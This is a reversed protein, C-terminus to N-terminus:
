CDGMTTEEEAEEVIEELFGNKILEKELRDLDKNTDVFITSSPLVSRNKYLIYTKTDLDVKIVRHATASEFVLQM